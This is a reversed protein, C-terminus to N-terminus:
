SFSYLFKRPPLDWFLNGCIGVFAIGEWIFHPLLETIRPEEADGGIFVYSTECHTVLCV